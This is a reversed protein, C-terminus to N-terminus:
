REAAVGGGRSGRPRERRATAIPAPLERQLGYDVVRLYTAEFFRVYPAVRPEAGDFGFVIGVPLNPPFLGGVGSTVVREGREIPAKAPFFRLQPRPSNDGALIARLSEKGEVFVPVRSNLDSILLVQAVHRGVEAIRGVLGGEGLVAEGRKVGEASGADILLSQAYAGGSDAIVRASVYSLAHEPVLKLLGRLEANETSLNLAAQRWALLRRNERLLKENRRYVAVWQKAGQALAGAGEIPRSLFALAPGFFDAAARRWTGVLVGDAKGLVILVVSLLVLFPPVFRQLATRRAPSLRIM